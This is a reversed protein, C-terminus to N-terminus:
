LDYNINGGGGARDWYETKILALAPSLALAPPLHLHLTLVLSLTPTPTLTLTPNLTLTSTCIPCFKRRAGKTGTASRAAKAGMSQQHRCRQCSVTPRLRGLAPPPPCPYNGDWSGHLGGGERAVAGIIRGSTSMRPHQLLSPPPPNLVPCNKDVFIYYPVVEAAIRLLLPFFQAM